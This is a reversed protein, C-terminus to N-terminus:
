ATIEAGVRALAERRLAGVEPLARALGAVYGLAEQRRCERAFRTPDIPERVAYPPSVLARAYLWRIRWFARLVGRNRLVFVAGSRGVLRYRRLVREPAMRDAPIRHTVAADPAYHIEHGARDLRYCLDTEDHVLDVRGLPGLRTCFGGIARATAVRFSINAGYPYDDRGYRLRRPQDGLDFASFASHVAPGLWPPPPLAFRLEIRGGVCAVRPDAYPGLLAGLWGPQPVADDDLFAVIAGRADALGRNRAASLGLRPESTVRLLGAHRRLVNELLATTGDSSANDVVLVESANRGAETIAGEVAEGLVDARDHTCIVVTAAPTSM